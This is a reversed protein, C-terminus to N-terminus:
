ADSSEIMAIILMPLQCIYKKGLTCVYMLPCWLLLQIRAGVELYEFDPGIGLGVPKLLFQAAELYKM